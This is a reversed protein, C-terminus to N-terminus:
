TNAGGGVAIREREDSPADEEFGKQCQVHVVAVLELYRLFSLFLKRNEESEKMWSSLEDKESPSAKEM